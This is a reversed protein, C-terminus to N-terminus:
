SEINFGKGKLEAEIAEYFSHDLDYDSVVLLEGYEVEVRTTNFDKLQNQLKENLTELLNM